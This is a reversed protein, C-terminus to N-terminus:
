LASGTYRQDLEKDDVIGVIAADVPAQLDKVAARASSGGVVLVTEGVGAGITDVAIVPLTGAGEDLLHIPRVIMLKAGVLREEKRTSWVTGIVVALQM